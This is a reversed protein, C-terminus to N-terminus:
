NVVFLSAPKSATALFFSKLPEPSDAVHKCNQMLSHLVPESFLLMTILHSQVSKSHFSIQLWESSMQLWGLRTVQRLIKLVLKM